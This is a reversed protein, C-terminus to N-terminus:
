PPWPPAVLRRRGDASRMVSAEGPVLERDWRQCTVEKHAQDLGECYNTFFCRRVEAGRGLRIKKLWDPDALSQRASAVIDAEGRELIGEAQAFTAIGGAAVVPTAFGAERVALRVAAALPVNRGFPGPAGIRV